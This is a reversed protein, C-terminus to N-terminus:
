EDAEPDSSKSSIYDVETFLERCILWHACKNSDMCARCTYLAAGRFGEPLGHM